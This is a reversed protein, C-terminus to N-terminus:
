SVYTLALLMANTSFELFIKNCIDAWFADIDLCWYWWMLKNKVKWFEM